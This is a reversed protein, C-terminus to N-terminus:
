KFSYLGFAAYTKNMPDGYVTPNVNRLALQVDGLDAKIDASSRVRRSFSKGGTSLSVFRQGRVSALFESKLEGFLQVLEQETFNNFASM